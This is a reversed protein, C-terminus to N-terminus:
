RFMREVEAVFWADYYALPEAQAAVTKRLRALYREADEARGLRRSAMALFALDGVRGGFADASHIEDSKKLNEVCEEYRGCRYLAVGLTNRYSPVEPALRVAVEAQRLARAYREPRNGERVIAIWAWDNLTWPDDRLERLRRLAAARLAPDLTRDAEIWAAADALVPVHRQSEEILRQAVLELAEDEPLLDAYREREASTLTRTTRAAALDLLVERSAAWIRIEGAQDATALYRGDPSFAVRKVQAGHGVLMAEEAGLRDWLHATCGDAGTAIWRGDPSFAPTASTWRPGRMEAVEAGHRDRIRALRGDVATVFVDGAPSFAAPEIMRDQIWACAPPRARLDWLRYTPDDRGGSLLLDGAPSFVLTDSNFEKDGLLTPPGDGAPWLRLERAANVTAVLDGEPAIGVSGIAAGPDRLTRLLRGEGDWVRVAGDACGALVRDGPPSFAAFGRYAFDGELPRREGPGPGALAMAGGAAVVLLRDTAPCYTAVGAGASWEALLRGDRDYTRHRGDGSLVILRSGDGTFALAAPIGRDTPVIGFERRELDFLVPEGSAPVTVARGGDPSFAIWRTPGWQGVFVQLMRGGGDWLRVRGDESGTLVRGGRPAVAVCLVRVGDGRLPTEPAGPGSQLFAAGDERVFATTGGAADRGPPRDAPEEGPAPKAARGELDWARTRGDRGVAVVRDGGPAFGARLWPGGEGALRAREPSARVADRLRRFTEASAHLRAAMRALILARMPDEADALASAGVLDLALARKLAREREALAAATERQAERSERLARERKRGEETALGLAERTRGLLQLSTGLGAALALLLGGLSAALAPNRRAWRQMRLLPGAPRARIPEHMRARRLDEALDLATQYRRDREKAMATAVVVALDVPIAPNRRRPDEAESSLIRHHLEHRTPAEFPLQGTLAEYLSVGLAYVDARRDVNLGSADIMEPAVYAPTGMISGTATLSSPSSEERALGFDMLVPDGAPTVMVNGPKIDRHVLGAEHAAHLARAVREFLAAHAAVEAPGRGGGSEKEIRRGLTEGEVFRMAIYAIRGDEGAEYVTCIGPHELRATIESERRFRRLQRREGDLAQTLVKLAVRRGLRDDEALYVVAQGGRGLERLIRYPGIREGSDVPPIKGEGRGEGELV